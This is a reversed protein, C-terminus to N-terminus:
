ELIIQNQSKEKTFVSTYSKDKHIFTVKNQQEPLFRMM